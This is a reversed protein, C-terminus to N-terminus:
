DGLGQEPWLLITRGSLDSGDWVPQPYNRWPTPFGKTRFRGEYDAFAAPLDRRRFLVNARHMHAMAYDPNLSIAREFHPMAQEYKNQRELAAGLNSHLKAEFQRRRQADALMPPVTGNELRA